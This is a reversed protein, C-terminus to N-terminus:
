FLLSNNFFIFFIIRRITVQWVVTSTEPFRDFYFQAAALPAETVLDLNTWKRIFKFTETIITLGVQDNSFNYSHTMVM